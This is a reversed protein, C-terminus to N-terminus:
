HTDFDNYPTQLVIAVYMELLAQRLPDREEVFRLKMASVRVKAESFARAFVPEALLSARSGEPKYSAELRGTTERALKFAFVAQNHGSHPATHNRMRRRLNTTRGVYLHRDGDSFLYICDNPVPKPLTKATVPAMAMMTEFAAHLPEVYERFRDHM